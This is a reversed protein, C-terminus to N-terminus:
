ESNEPGDEQLRKRTWSPNQRCDLVAVVTAFEGDFRDYIAIPFWRALERHYGFALEHVGGYFMLSDIDAIIASRFYDGFGATQGEYFWFGEAIDREADSTIQINM